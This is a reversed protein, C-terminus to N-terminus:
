ERETLAVEGGLELRFRGRGTQALRIEPCREALRRRLLILRSELNDKYAPLKLSKDLRLRRNTFDVTGDARHERLLKALIKAALGRVLYDGDVLVVEDGAYYELEIRPRLTGDPPRPLGPDPRDLPPDGSEEVRAQLLANQIAIALFGGLVELYQRDEEHFRYFEETEICLVGVLEDRVLLPIGLQTEPHPLGPLPIRRHEPCLGQERASKAVAYAYLMQRMMGSVRVPKRAEAVMGIIGEGFGVDSGVGGPPYGRYAVVELRDPQESPLLIMSHRFGFIKETTELIAELLCDLTPAQQIRDSIEQLAKLTFPVRANIDLDGLSSRAEPSLGAEYDVREVSLVEYVDAGLLNFIGKLGSYSAIAEIRLRMSEFTPGETETRVYRLRLRYAQMSDPDLLRVMARPNESINRKSKNFFQFSLAVHRPDVYDVHSVIAANPMGDKSCTCLWAPLIGQFCSTLSELPIM